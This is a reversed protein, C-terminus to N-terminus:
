LFNVLHCLICVDVGVSSQYRIPKCIALYKQISAVLIVQYRIYNASAMMM